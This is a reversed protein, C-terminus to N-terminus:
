DNGLELFIMIKLKSLKIIIEITLFLLLAFDLYKAKKLQDIFFPPRYRDWRKCAGFFCIRIGM